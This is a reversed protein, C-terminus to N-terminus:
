TKRYFMDLEYISANSVCKFSGISPQHSKSVRHGRTPNCLGPIAPTSINGSVTHIQLHREAHDSTGLLLKPRRFYISIYCGAPEIVARSLKWTVGRQTFRVLIPNGTFALEWDHLQRISFNAGGFQVLNEQQNQRHEISHAIWCDISNWCLHVLGKFHYLFSLPVLFVRVASRCVSILEWYLYLTQDKDLIGM